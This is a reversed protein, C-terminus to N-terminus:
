SIEEITVQNGAWLTQSCFQCQVGKMGKTGNMYLWWGGDEYKYEFFRKVGLTRRRLEEGDAM